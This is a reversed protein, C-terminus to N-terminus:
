EVQPFFEKSTLDVIEEGIERLLIESNKKSMSLNLLPIIDFMNENVKKLAQINVAKHM